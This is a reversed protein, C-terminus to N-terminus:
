GRAAKQNKYCWPQMLQGLCLVDPFLVFLSKAFSVNMKESIIKKRTVKTFKIGQRVSNGSYKAGWKILSYGFHLPHSLQTPM